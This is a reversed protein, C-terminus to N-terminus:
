TYRPRLEDLAKEAEIRCDHEAELLGQQENSRLRLEDVCGPLDGMCACDPFREFLLKLVTWQADSESRLATLERELIQSFEYMRRFKDMLAILENMGGKAYCSYFDDSRPTESRETTTM